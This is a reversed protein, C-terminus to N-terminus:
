AQNKGSLTKLQKQNEVVILVAALLGGVEASAQQVWHKGVLGM